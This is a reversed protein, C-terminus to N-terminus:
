GSQARSSGSDEDEGYQAHGSAKPSTGYLGATINDRSQPAHHDIPPPKAFGQFQLDTPKNVTEFPTGFAQEKPTWPEISDNWSPMLAFDDSITELQQYLSM